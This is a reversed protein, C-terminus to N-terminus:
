QLKGGIANLIDMNSLAEIGIDELSKEGQLEVQNIKPKNDLLVYNNHQVHNVNKIPELEFPIDNDKENLEINIEDKIELDFQIPM